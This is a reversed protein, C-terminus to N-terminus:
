HEYNLHLEIPKPQIEWREIIDHYDRYQPLQSRPFEAVVQIRQNSNATGKLVFHPGVTSGSLPASVRLHPSSASLLVALFWALFSMAM